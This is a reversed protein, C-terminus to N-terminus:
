SILHTTVTKKSFDLVHREFSVLVYAEKSNSVDSRRECLPNATPIMITTSPTKFSINRLKM